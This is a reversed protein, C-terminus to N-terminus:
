NTADERGSETHTRALELLEKESVLWGEVNVHAYGPNYRDVKKLAEEVAQRKASEILFAVRNQVVSGVYIQEIGKGDRGLARVSVVAPMRPDDNIGFIEELSVIRPLKDVEQQSQPQSTM